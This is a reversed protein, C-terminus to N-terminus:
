NLAQFIDVIDFKEKTRKELLKYIKLKEFYTSYKRCFFYKYLTAKIYERLSLVFKIRSKIKNLLYTYLQRNDKNTDLITKM